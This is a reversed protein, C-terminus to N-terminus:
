LEHVDDTTILAPAELPRVVSARYLAADNGNIEVAGPLDLTELCGPIVADHAVGIELSEHQLRDLILAIASRFTRKHCLASMVM